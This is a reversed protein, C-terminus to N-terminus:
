RRMAYGAIGVGVVAVIGAWRALACQIHYKATREIAESDNMHPFAVDPVDRGLAKCLPGWGDNVDYFVLREAPVIDKLWAVHRAYTEENLLIGGTAEANRCVIADGRVEDVYREGWQDTLLWLYDVFNRLRPLPLLLVKLFWLSTYGHVQNMSKAWSDPDRVTCIVKADPYLQMLEPVLQSGPADAIAVFGDLRQQILPLVMARDKPNPSRRCTLIQMWAEIDGAAGLTTQTGCHYVPGNLLIELAASLSATGTRPLGAGIVQLKAHPKPTSATQGM